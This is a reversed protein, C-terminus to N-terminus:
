SRVLLRQKLPSRKTRPKPSVSNVYNMKEGKRESKWSVKSLYTHPSTSGSRAAASTRMMLRSFAMVVLSSQALTEADLTAAIVWSGNQGTSCRWPFLDTQKTANSWTQITCIEAIKSAVM